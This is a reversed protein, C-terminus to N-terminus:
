QVMLIGKKMGNRKDLVGQIVKNESESFSSKNSLKPTPIPNPNSDVKKFMLPRNIDSYNKTSYSNNNSIVPSLTEKSKVSNFQKKM